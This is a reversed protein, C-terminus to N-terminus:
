AAADLSDARGHPSQGACPLLAGQRRRRWRVQDGGNSSILTKQGQVPFDSSTFRWGAPSTRSIRLGSATRLSSGMQTMSSRRSLASRSEGMSGNAMSRCWARMDDPGTRSHRTTAPHITWRTVLRKSRLTGPRDRPTVGRNGPATQCGERVHGSRIGRRRSEARLSRSGAATRLGCRRDRRVGPRVHTPQARGPETWCGSIPPQWWERRSM